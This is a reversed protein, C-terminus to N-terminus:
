GILGYNRKADLIRLVAEDLRARPVKGSRVARLVAVYAARQESAPGSIYLLDAGARLAQVAAAPLSASTAIPPDALDDTIAIGGFRERRRLLDTAIKRSLSGPVTFDDPAYFAHSLVVAPVGAKFAARFPILDRGALEELSLGVTAPSEQTDASAAGLGPFHEVAALVRGRRYATVAATAYAAVEGPEDSYSRGGLPDDELGVDIDPGLVGTVGLSRLTGAAARAETGAEAASPLDAPARAPPLDPFANLEGGLQEAMVLPPVRKARRSVVVAEGAMQGLLSPDAYNERGIVIGGLDLRQLQKYIEANLDSGEFGLLFLQAVKRDVPLRRALDAVSRPVNPARAEARKQEETPPPIVRALFSLRSAPEGRAAEPLRKPPEDGRQGVLAGATGSAAAVVALTAAAVWRRGTPRTVPTFSDKLAM